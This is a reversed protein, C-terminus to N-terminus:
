EDFLEKPAEVEQKTYARELQVSTHLLGGCLKPSMANNLALEDMIHSFYRAVQNMIEKVEGPLIIDRVGCDQVVVGLDAAKAQIEKMVFASISEKREGNACSSVVPVVIVM